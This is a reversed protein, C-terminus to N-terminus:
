GNRLELTSLSLLIKSISSSATLNSFSSDDDFRMSFDFAAFCTLQSVNLAQECSGWDIICGQPFHQLRNVRNNNGLLLTELNSIFSDRSLIITGLCDKYNQFKVHIKM